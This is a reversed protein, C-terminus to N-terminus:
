KYELIMSQYQMSIFIGEKGYKKKLLSSLVTVVQQVGATESCFRELNQVATDMWGPWQHSCIPLDREGLM